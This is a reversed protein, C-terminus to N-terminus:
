NRTWNVRLDATFQSGGVFAVGATVSDNRVKLSQVTSLSGTRTQTDSPAHNIRFFGTVSNTLNADLRLSFINYRAPDSYSATFEANGNGLDRGNQLPIANIYPRLAPFAQARLSATMVSTLTAKPQQLRLGEYSAFFFLRNRGNFLAPGGEGFRPVFLPGGLVGGFLNQREHPKPQRRSNAFWDNADLAENRFFYSASGHFQNTGSRTVLSIQGGTTRGFEPAYTSTELRVEQLADLSVLSNTGGLATTGPAQGSGTQAPGSLDGAAMGTNASVGDVTFYNSTTRQGNVSFESGEGARTLVVGPTLQILAQLSRGNLPINAVFQRNVVTGVSGDTRVTEADSDITVQANVDGAKLQIQLAKQDGVNLVVHEVRVPSFGDRQVTVNYAGPPLLPFVYAGADSTTTQRSFATATNVIKVAAGPVVAGNQDVVDGSLTATGSQALVVHAFLCCVVFFCLAFVNRMATQADRFKLSPRNM